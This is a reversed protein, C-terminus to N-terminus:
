PWGGQSGAQNQGSAERDQRIPAQHGCPGGQTVASRQLSQKIHCKTCLPWALASVLHQLSKRGKKIYPLSCPSPVLVEQLAHGATDGPIGVSGERRPCLCLPCKGPAQSDPAKTNTPTSLTPAKPSATLKHRPGHDHRYCCGRPSQKSAQTTGAPGATKGQTRPTQLISLHQGQEM